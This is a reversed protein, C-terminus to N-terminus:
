IAHVDQLKGMMKKVTGVEEMDLGTKFFVLNFVGLREVSRQNPIKHNKHLIFLKMKVEKGKEFEGFSIPDDYCIRTAKEICISDPRKHPLLLLHQM